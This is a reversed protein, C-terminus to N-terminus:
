CRRHRRSCIWGIHSKKGEDNTFNYTKPKIYKVAKYCERTNAEKINEKLKSDSTETLAVCTVNGGIEANGTTTLIGYVDVGTNTTDLRSVNNNSSRIYGDTDPINILVRQSGSVDVHTIELNGLLDVKGETLQIEPTSGITGVILNIARDTDGNRIDLDYDSGNFTEKIGSSHQFLLDGLVNLSTEATRNGISNFTQNNTVARNMTIGNTDNLQLAISSTTPDDARNSQLSFNNENASIVNLSNNADARQFIRGSNNIHINGNFTSTNQFSSTGGFNSNGVSVNLKNAGQVAGIGLSLCYVGKGNATNFLLLSSSDNSTNYAHINFSNFAIYGQANKVTFVNSADTTDKYLTLGNSNNINATENELELCNTIRTTNFDSTGGVNLFYNADPATGVGVRTTGETGIFLECDGDDQLVMQGNTRGFENNRFEFTGVNERVRETYDSTASPRVIDSGTGKVYMDGILDLRIASRIVDISSTGAVALFYLPNLSAGIGVRATSATGIQVIGNGQDDLELAEENDNSTANCSIKKGKLTIYSTQNRFVAVDRDAEAGFQNSFLVGELPEIHVTSNKLTLGQHLISPRSLDVIPSFSVNDTFVSLDAKLNLKNDIQTDTYGGGGGAGAILTDVEGKNYFNTALLANNKYNSSLNTDIQASTYYNTLPTDM